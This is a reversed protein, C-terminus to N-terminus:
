RFDRSSTALAGLLKSHDVLMGAMVYVTTAEREITGYVTLLRSQTLAVRFREAINRWVTINILGHEDELTVFVVGSATDPRQRNLVVGTTRMLQGQRAHQIEDSSKLRMSKLKPRLLKMPHSRLTLGLRNYDALVEEGETPALLSPQRETQQSGRLLPPLRETGLSTWIAERRHGTLSRFADAEALANMDKANLNAQERLEDLSIFTKAQRAKVVRIGGDWSLGGISKLGLRIAPQGNAIVDPVLTSEWDSSLVDVPYVKVGHRQVDYVIQAPAYFGMPQSNLLGAAFAAPEYCKLWATIYALLAFSAAHSEPFGYDGFGKVMEFIQEAYAQEYGRVLMGEILKDRFPELGGKRKWAAMARRLQDAEGPTFGAAKIAIAMVQEQFITVGLTRELIYKIDDSPYVIAEAGARRRLYPHVMGGKIPGPRVIAVQIVIDYFTRPRLTPLRAMQARSEVQFLGITDAVCLMDYVKPDESPIDQVRLNTGRYVNVMDISKRIATMVGLALVDVKMLGLVDLDYKDWQIVSRGAMRAPEVPVLRTLKRNDLVFGGTHQGQHRPFSRIEDVLAILLKVKANDPDFGVESLRDAPIGSEDRLTMAASLKDTQDMSFGLAKGVDRMAGKAHYTSVTATIAARDRGYKRFLYQIVEERREHEFDVDIDPPENRERSIFREFLVQMRGPDVETIGLCYCVVSNAASGRGQCMIRQDRAFKVIDYVTLFYAEYQMEQILALEYEILNRVKDTLGHPYRIKVGEYTLQRLYSAPSENVPVVEEPYEYHIESLCFSCRQVIALTEILLEPPYVNSLRGIARLYREGNPYLAARCEAVPKGVRISTLVNQLAHRQRVHMHVDGAAVLKLDSITAIQQLRQLWWKDDAGRLMEVAIWCRKTFHQALWNAQEAHDFDSTSDEKPCWIVLCDDISDPLDSRSLQYSGKEARSRALTILECMNGYGNLNTALLVLKLGDLLTIETGIILKVNLERAEAYARVVGAVSCEDTIAIAHYGLKSAQQVMEEPHSAGRLFTYNTLCHLEAYHPLM